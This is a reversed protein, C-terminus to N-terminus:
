SPAEPSPNPSPNPSPVIGVKRAVTDAARATAQAGREIGRGTAHLGVRIGHEAASAGREIGRAAAKAGREIAGAVQTVVGSTAPGSAQDQACLTAPTALLALAALTALCTPNM